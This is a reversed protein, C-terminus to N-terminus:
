YSFLCLTTLIQAQFSSSLFFFFCLDFFLISSLFLLIKYLAPFSYKMYLPSCCTISVQPTTFPSFFFTFSKATKLEVYDAVEFTLYLDDKRVPPPSSSAHQRQMLSPSKPNAM